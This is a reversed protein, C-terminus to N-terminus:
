KDEIQRYSNVLANLRKVEEQLREIKDLLHAVAGLGEINIQMEDHLRLLKELKGLQDQSLYYEEEIVITECIGHDCLSHIFSIEIQFIDCFLNLPIFENRDAIM